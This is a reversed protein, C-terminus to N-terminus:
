KAGSGLCVCTGQAGPNGYCYWDAATAGLQSACFQSGPDAAPNAPASLAAGSCGGPPIQGLYQASYTEGPNAACGGDGNVFVCNTPTTSVSPLGSAANNCSIFWWGHTARDADTAAQTCTVRTTGSSTLIQVTTIEGSAPVTPLKLVSPSKVLNAIAALAPGFDEGVAGEVVDVGRSRLRTALDLLRVGGAFETARNNGTWDPTCQLPNEPSVPATPSPTMPCWPPGSCSDAPAYTNPPILTGTCKVSSVIFAAGLATYPQTATQKGPAALLSGLYDDYDSVPFERGSGNRLKDYVCSDAGTNGILMLSKSPDDPTSCDDEDGVWVVVLKAGQHPWEGLPVGAQGQLAKQLSLRSAQLHQEQGSGCTGVKINQSFQDVLGQLPQENNTPTWTAWNLNKTFHLVKTNPLPGSASAVFNGSPYATGDTAVGPLCGSLGAFNYNRFYIPCADGSACGGTATTCSSTAFTCCQKTYGDLNTGSAYHPNTSCVSSSGAPPSPNCTNGLTCTTDAVCSTAPCCQTAGACVSTGRLTLFISSTTVAIHFELPELGKQQRTVNFTALSQIFTKFNDALAQQKDQTSFSDDVVFLVDAVSVGALKVQESGPQIVCSGVPNFSYDQCAVAAIAGLTLLALAVARRSM